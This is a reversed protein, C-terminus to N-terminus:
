WLSSSKNNRSSMSMMINSSNSNAQSIVQVMCILCQLRKCKSSSNCQLTSHYRNILLNPLKSIALHTARQIKTILFALHMSITIWKNSCITSNRNLKNKSALKAVLLTILISNILNSPKKNSSCILNSSPRPILHLNIILILDVTMKNLKHKNSRRRDVEELCTM